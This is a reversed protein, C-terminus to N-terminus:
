FKKKKYIELSVKYSTPLLIVLLVPLLYPLTKLTELDPLPVGMRSLLMLLLVPLFVLGLVIGGARGVGFKYLAPLLFSLYILGIESGTLAMFFTEKVPVNARFFSAVLCIGTVVAVGIALALIVLLYKSLVFTERKHVITSPASGKNKEDHILTILPLMMSILVLLAPLFGIINLAIAYFGFFGLLGLFILGPVKIAIFDKLLLERM